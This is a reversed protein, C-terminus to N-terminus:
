LQLYPARTIDLQLVGTPPDTGHLPTIQLVVCSGPWHSRKSGFSVFALITTVSVCTDVIKSPSSRGSRNLLSPDWDGGFPAVPRRVLM